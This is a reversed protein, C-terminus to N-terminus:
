ATGRADISAGRGKSSFVTSARSIKAAPYYESVYVCLRGELLCSTSRTSTRSPHRGALNFSILYTPFCGYIEKSGKLISLISNVGRLQFISPQFSASLTSIDVVYKWANTFVRGCQLNLDRLSPSQTADSSSAVDFM